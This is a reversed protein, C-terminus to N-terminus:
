EAFRCRDQAAEQWQDLRLSVQATDHLDEHQLGESLVCLPIRRLCDLGQLSGQRPGLWLAVHTEKHIFAWGHSDQQVQEQSTPWCVASSVVYALQQGDQPCRVGLRHWRSM